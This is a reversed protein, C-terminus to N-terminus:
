RRLFAHCGSCFFVRNKLAGTLSAHSRAPLAHCRLRRFSVDPAARAAQFPLAASSKEVIRSINGNCRGISERRIWEAATLGSVIASTVPSYTPTFPLGPQHYCRGDHCDALYHLWGSEILISGIAM